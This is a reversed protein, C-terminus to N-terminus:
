IYIYHKYYSSVISCSSGLLGEEAGRARGGPLTRITVTHTHTHIVMHIYTHIPVMYIHTHVTVMYATVIYAIYTYICVHTYITVM